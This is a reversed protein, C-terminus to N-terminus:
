INVISLNGNNLDFKYKEGNFDTVIVIDELIELDETFIDKGSNSWLKKGEKTFCGIEVEGWTLFCNRNRLYFVSFCTAFDVKLCWNLELTPLFLSYVSDGAAVCICNGDFAISNEHVGTAGGVGLLVASALAVDNEKVYIGHASVHQYKDNRCYEHIYNRPNDTSNRSYTPENILTIEYNGFIRNM